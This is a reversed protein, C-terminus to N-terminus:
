SQRLRRPLDMRGPGAEGRFSGRLVTDDTGGVQKDDLENHWYGKFWQQSDPSASRPRRASRCTSTAAVKYRDGNGIEGTM